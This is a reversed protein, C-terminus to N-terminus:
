VPDLEVRVNAKFDEVTDFTAVSRALRVTWSGDSEDQEVGTILGKVIHEYGDEFYHVTGVRDRAAFPDFAIYMGPDVGIGVAELRKALDQAKLQTDETPYIKGGLQDEVPLQAEAFTLLRRILPLDDATIVHEPAPTQTAEELPPLISDYAPDTM